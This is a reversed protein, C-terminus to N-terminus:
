GDGPPKLGLARLIQQDAVEATVPSGRELNRLWRRFQPNGLYASYKSGECVRVM